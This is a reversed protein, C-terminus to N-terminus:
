ASPSQYARANALVKSVYAQTEPYPPVGGYRQVAGAGANYAALAYSVNGGFQRLLQGLLRAGGEISQAPDLPESVRLSAATSPMLQTLGLAGASSQASPNFGSEQEILGKLLAPEVGNRAAAQQILAEYPAPAGAGAATVPQSETAPLSPAAMPSSTAPSQTVTSPYGAPLAPAPASGGPYAAIAAEYAGSVITSGSQSMGEVEAGPIAEAEASPMPDAEASPMPEPQMEAEAAAEDAESAAQLAAAFSGANGAPPLSPSAQTALAQLQGAGTSAPTQLPPAGASLIPEIM